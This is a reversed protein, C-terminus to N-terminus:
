LERKIPHHRKLSCGKTAYSIRFRKIDSSKLHKKIRYYDYLKLIDLVMVLIFFVLEKERRLCEYAGFGQLKFVRIFSVKNNLNSM